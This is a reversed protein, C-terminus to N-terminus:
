AGLHYASKSFLQSRYGRDHRSPAFEYARGAGRMNKATKGSLALVRKYTTGDWLDMKNEPRRRIAWAALDLRFPPLAKLFLTSELVSQRM